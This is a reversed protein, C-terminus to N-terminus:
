GSADGSSADAKETGAAYDEPGHRTCDWDPERVFHASHARVNHSFSVTDCFVTNSKFPM